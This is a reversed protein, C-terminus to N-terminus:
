PVSRQREERSAPATEADVLHFDPRAGAPSPCLFLIVLSVRGTNEFGHTGEAGAPSYVCSGPGVPVAVGAADLATGEGGLIYQFEPISHWHVPIRSGPELTSTGGYLGADLIEGDFAIAVASGAM